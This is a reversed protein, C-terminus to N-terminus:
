EIESLIPKALPAAACMLPVDFFSVVGGIVKGREKM